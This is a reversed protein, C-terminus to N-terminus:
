AHLWVVWVMVVKSHSNQVPWLPQVPSLLIERKSLAATLTRSTLWPTAASLTLIWEALISAQWGLITTKLLCAEVFKHWHQLVQEPYRSAGGDLWELLHSIVVIWLCTLASSLKQARLVSLGFGGSPPPGTRHRIASAATCDM